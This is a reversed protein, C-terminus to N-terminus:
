ASVNESEEEDVESEEVPTASPRLILDGDANREGVEQWETKLTTVATSRAVDEPFNAKVLVAFMNRLNQQAEDLIPKAYGNAALEKSQLKARQKTKSKANVMQLISDEDPLEDEPIDKYEGYETFTGEITISTPEGDATVLIYGWAKKVEAKITGKSKTM